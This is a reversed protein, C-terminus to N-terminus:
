PECPLSRAGQGEGGGGAATDRGRLNPHPPHAGTPPDVPGPRFGLKAKELSCSARASKEPAEKLRPKGTWLIPCDADRPSTPCVPRRTRGQRPGPHGLLQLPPLAPSLSLRPSSHVKFCGPPMEWLEPTTAPVNSTAGPRLRALVRAPLTRISRSPRPDRVCAGAERSGM